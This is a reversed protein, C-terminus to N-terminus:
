ISCISRYDDWTELTELLVFGTMCENEADGLPSAPVTIGISEILAVAYASSSFHTPRHRGECCM